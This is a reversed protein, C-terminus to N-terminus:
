RVISIQFDVEQITKWSGSLFDRCWLFARSKTDRDVEESRGDRFSEAESDDDVMPSPTRMYRESALLSSAVRRKEGPPGAGASSLTACSINTSRLGSELKEARGLGEAGSCNSCTANRGSQMTLKRTLLLNVGGYFTPRILCGFPCASVRLECIFSSLRYLQVYSSTRFRM